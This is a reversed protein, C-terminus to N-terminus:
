AAAVITSAALHYCHRHNRGAPCSCRATDPETVYLGNGTVLWVGPIATAEVGGREIVRAARSLQAQSYPRTDLAQAAAKLKRVCGPGYGRAVSAPDTLTRGCRHCRTTHM